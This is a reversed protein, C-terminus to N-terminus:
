ESAGQGALLLYLCEKRKRENSNSELTACGLKVWPRSGPSSSSHDKHQRDQIQLLQRTNDVLLDDLFPIVVVSVAQRGGDVEWGGGWEGKGGEKRWREREKNKKRLFINASYETRLYVITFLLLLM